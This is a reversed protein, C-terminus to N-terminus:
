TTTKTAITTKASPAHSVVFCLASSASVGPSSYVSTGSFTEALADFMAPDTKTDKLSRPLSAFTPVDSIHIRAGIAKARELNGASGPAFTPAQLLALLLIGLALIIYWKRVSLYRRLKQM